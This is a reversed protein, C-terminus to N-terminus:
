SVLRLRTRRWDELWVVFDRSAIPRSILYGQAVDCGSAALEDRQEETEIGEAVVHLGLNKGLAIVSGILARAYASDESGLGVVFSRDIKLESVPLRQLYALSSYGTGFDDLSIGIGLAALRECVAVAREPERMVSSETIELTLRHAALGAATLGDRVLTVLDADTVDNASLNVAVGLDHGNAVWRACDRLAANVVHTTLRGILGTTEALPIFRDPSLVGLSPHLWRVLAEAGVISGTALDLKPQYVLAFEEPREDLAIRLDAILALNRARGEDMDPHYEAIGDKSAKAEYMAIDARRMLDDYARAAPPGHHVAIGISADPTLTAEDLHVPRVLDVRIQEAVAHAAPGADVDDTVLVAFEDGGLRAVVAHEPVCAALRSAVVTLLRDGVAHGLVDNVEKFKNLDLLLVATGGAGGFQEDAIREVLLTRNPLGTLPDHMADHALRELLTAGRLAVSLHTALTQLMDADSSTFTSTEGLRDSVTLVGFASGDAILPTVIADRTGRQALWARTAADKATRPVLTTVGSDLAARRFFDTPTPGAPEIRVDDNEDATVAYASDAPRDAGGPRGVDTLLVEVEAARLIARIRALTGSLLEEVTEHGQQGVAVFEHVTTLSHHRKSTATYGAYGATAIGVLLVVLVGGGTGAELLLAMACGFVTAAASLVFVTAQIGVTEHGDVHGGHMRIVILVLISTLQDVVAMCGVVLGMTALTLTGGTLNADVLHVLTGGLAAEFTYTALNYAMKEPAMRQWALAVLAGVLRVAVLEHVPLALVGIVLPVGAFTTSHAQRRFEFNLLYLEGLFFAVALAAALLPRQLLPAPTRAASAAAMTAAGALLGVSLLATRATPTQFVAARM